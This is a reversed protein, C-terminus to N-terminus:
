VTILLYFGMIILLTGGAYQVVRGIKSIGSSMKEIGLKLGVMGLALPLAYGLAFVTLMLLGWLMSGKVFSAALIIPFIPNCCSNFATSLGGIALGFLIASFIGPKLNEQKVSFSPIKFPLFNMSYLGFFVCIFGAAIKWWTGFSDGALGGAFGFLAGIAAMSLVAGFLFAAGSWIVTKTRGATKLSGSYGAVVALIAYNCGCTLVGIVGLLFVAALVAIGAQGSGLVEQIWTEM